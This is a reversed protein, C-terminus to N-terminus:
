AASGKEAQIRLHVEERNVIVDKPADIAIKVQNGQIRVITVTVDDGIM